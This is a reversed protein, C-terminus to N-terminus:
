KQKDERGADAVCPTPIFRENDNLVAFIAIDVMVARPDNSGRNMQASSKQARNPFQIHKHGSRM